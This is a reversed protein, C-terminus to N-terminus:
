RPGVRRLLSKAAAVVRRRDHTVGFEFEDASGPRRAVLASATGPSLAVVAWQDRLGDDADGGTRVGPAAPVDPGLLVVTVGRGALDALRRVDGDSLADPGPVAVLMLAPGTTPVAQDSIERSMPRLIQDGGHGRPQADLVEFPTDVDSIPRHGVRWASTPEAPEPLPGPGAFYYGQGLEAGVSRAFEEHIATEVGEALITAGTREAEEYAIDLIRTVGASPRKQTVSLDLKIVDVGLVPLLSLSASPTGLDDIAIGAVMHRQRDIGELLARTDRDLSRETVELVVQYRRFGEEIDALLEPPCSSGIALPEINFFLLTDPPLGASLAARCASARAAWDFEVVQRTRYAERVLADAGELRSGAPGRVLAEYGVDAGSSLHRIPQFVTRLQGTRLLERLGPGAGGGSM